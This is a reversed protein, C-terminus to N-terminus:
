LERKMGLVRALLVDTTAGILVRLAGGGGGLTWVVIADASSSGNASMYLAVSQTITERGGGRLTVRM